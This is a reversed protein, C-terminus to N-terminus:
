PALVPAAPPRTTAVPTRTDVTACGPGGVDSAWGMRTVAAGTPLYPPTFTIATGAVTALSDEWVFAGQTLRCHVVRPTSLAVAWLLPSACTGGNDNTPATVTVPALTYFTAAHGPPVTACSTLAVLLLALSIRKM